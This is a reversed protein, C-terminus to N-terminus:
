IAGPLHASAAESCANPSVLQTVFASRLEAILRPVELALFDFEDARQPARVPCRSSGLM